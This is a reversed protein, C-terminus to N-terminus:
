IISTANVIYSRQSTSIIFKIRVEEDVQNRDERNIIESFLEAVVIPHVTALADLAKSKKAHQTQGLQGLYSADSREARGAVRVVASAPECSSRMKLAFRMALFM